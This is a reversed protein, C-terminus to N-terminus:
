SLVAPTQMLAVLPELKGFSLSSEEDSARVRALGLESALTTGLGAVLMGRGVDGLFERRNNRVM